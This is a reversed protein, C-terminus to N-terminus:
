KAPPLPKAQISYVMEQMAKMSQWEVGDWMLVDDEGIPEAMSAIRKVGDKLCVDGIYFPPKANSQYPALRYVDLMWRVGMPTPIDTM